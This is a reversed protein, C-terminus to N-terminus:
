DRTTPYIEGPGRLPSQSAQKTAYRIGYKKVIM